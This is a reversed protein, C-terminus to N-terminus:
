RTTAAPSALFLPSLFPVFLAFLSFFSIIEVRVLKMREFYMDRYIYCTIYIVFIKWFSGKHALNAGGKNNEPMILWWIRCFAKARCTKLLFDVFYIIKEWKIKTMKEENKYFIHFINRHDIPKTMKSLQKPQALFYMKIRYDM